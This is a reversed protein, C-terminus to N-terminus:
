VPSSETQASYMADEVSLGSHPWLLVPAHAPAAAAVVIAIVVILAALSRVRQGSAILAVPRVHLNAAGRLLDGLFVGRQRAIRLAGAIPHHGFVIELVGLMVVADDHRRHRLRWLRLHAIGAVLIIEVLIAVVTEGRNLLLRLRNGFMVDLGFLRLWALRLWPLRAALPTLRLRRLLVAGARLRHDVANRGLHR